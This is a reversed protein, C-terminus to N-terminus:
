RVVGHNTNVKQAFLLRGAKRGELTWSGVELLAIGKIESLSAAIFTM